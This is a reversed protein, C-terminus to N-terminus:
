AKVIIDECKALGQGVGPMTWYVRYYKSWFPKAIQFRAVKVRNVKFSRDQVGQLIIEKSEEFIQMRKEAGHPMCFTTEYNFLFRLNGGEQKVDVLQVNRADDPLADSLKKLRKNM